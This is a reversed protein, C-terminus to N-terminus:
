CGSISVTGGAGGIPYSWVPTDSSRNFLYMDRTNDIEYGIKLELAVFYEGDDSIDVSGHYETPYSWLPTNSDKSFLYLNYESQVWMNAVIYSGDGSVAVDQCQGPVTWIPSNSDKSFLFLGSGEYRSSCLLIFNGDGSIAISTHWKSLSENEFSWLEPDYNEYIITDEGYLEIETVFLDKLQTGSTVAKFYRAKTTPFFLDFRHKDKDYVASYVGPIKTWVNNDDSHYIYWHYGDYLYPPPETTYLYILKIERAYGLDAGFNHDEDPYDTGSIKIGTSTDKDGDILLPLDQLTADFATKDQIYLGKEPSRKEAHSPPTTIILIIMLLLITISILLKRNPFQM